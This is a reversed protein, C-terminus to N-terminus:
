PNQEAWIEQLLEAGRALWEAMRLQLSQLALEGQWHLQIEEALQIELSNLAQLNDFWELPIRSNPPLHPL